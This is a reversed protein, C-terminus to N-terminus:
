AAEKVPKPASFMAKLAELQEVEMAKLNADLSDFPQKARCRQLTYGHRAMCWLFSDIVYIHAECWTPKKARPSNSEDPAALREVLKFVAKQDHFDRLFEPLHAGTKRWATLHDLSM